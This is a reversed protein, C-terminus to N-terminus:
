DNEIMFTAAILQQNETEPQRIANKKKFFFKFCTNQVKKLNEKLQRFVIGPNSNAFDLNQTTDM